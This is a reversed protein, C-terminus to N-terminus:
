GLFREPANILIEGIVLGICREETGCIYRRWDPDNGNCLAAVPDLLLGRFLATSTSHPSAIMILTRQSVKRSQQYRRHRFPHDRRRSLSVGSPTGFRRSCRRNPRAKAQDDFIAQDDFTRKRTHFRVHHARKSGKRNRGLGSMLPAASWNAPQLIAKLGEVSERWDSKRAGGQGLSPAGM